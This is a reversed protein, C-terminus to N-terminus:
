WQKQAEQWDLAGAKEPGQRLKALSEKVVARDEMEELYELINRWDEMSVQVAAQKGNADLVFQVNKLASLTVM